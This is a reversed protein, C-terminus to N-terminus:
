LFEYFFCEFISHYYGTNEEYLDNVIVDEFKTKLSNKINEINKNNHDLSFLDVQIRYVNTENTDDSYNESYGSVIQFTIYTTSKGTYKLYSTPINLGKLTDGILNIVNM